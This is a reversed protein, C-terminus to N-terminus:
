RGSELGQLSKQIANLTDQVDDALGQLLKEAYSSAELKMDSAEARAEECIKDAEEHAIRIIESQDILARARAEAKEVIDAAHDEADGVIKQARENADDLAANARAEAAQRRSEATTHADRIIRDRKRLIENSYRVADPLCNRIDEVIDLCMQMPVMRKGSSLPVAPATTITEVLFNLLRDLESQEQEEDEAEAYEGMAADGYVREEAQGDKYNREDPM